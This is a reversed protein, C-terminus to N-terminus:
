MAPNSIKMNTAPGKNMILKDWSIILLSIWKLVMRKRTVLVVLSLIIKPLNKPTEKKQNIHKNM